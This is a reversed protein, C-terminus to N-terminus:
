PRTAPAPGEPPPRSPFLVESSRDIVAPSPLGTAAAANALRRGVERSLRPLDHASGVMIVPRVRHKDALEIFAELQPDADHQHSNLITALTAKMEVFFRERQGGVEPRSVLADVERYVPLRHWSSTSALRQGEFHSLAVQEVTFGAQMLSRVCEVEVLFGSLKQELNGPRSVTRELEEHDRIVRLPGTLLRHLGEPPHPQHAGPSELLGVIGHVISLGIRRGREDAALVIRRLDHELDRVPVTAGTSSMYSALRHITSEIGLEETRLRPRIEAIITVPDAGATLEDHLARLAVRGAAKDELWVEPVPVGSRTLAICQEAFEVDGRSTLALANFVRLSGALARAEGRLGERAEEYRRSLGPEPIVEAAVDKGALLRIREELAREQKILLTGEGRARASEEAARESVAAALDLLREARAGLYERAFDRNEPTAAVFTRHFDRLEERTLPISGSTLRELGALLAVEDSVARLEALPSDATTGTLGLGTGGAGTIGGGSRMSM